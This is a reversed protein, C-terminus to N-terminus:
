HGAFFDEWFTKVEWSLFPRIKSFAQQFQDLHVHTLLFKIDETRGQSIVQQIYLELSAPNSLDLEVSDKFFWFLRKSPIIRM